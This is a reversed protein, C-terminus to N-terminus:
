VYGRPEHRPQHGPDSAHAEAPPPSRARHRRGQSRGHEVLPVNSRLGDPRRALWADLLAKLQPHLPSYRDNHLMGLPVRLWYASGIQVVADV